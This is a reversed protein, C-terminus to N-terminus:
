IRPSTISSHRGRRAKCADGSQPRGVSAPVHPMHDSREELAPSRQSRSLRQTRLAHGLRSTHSTRGLIQSTGESSVSFGADFGDCSRVRFVPPKERVSKTGIVFSVTVALTDTPGAEISRLLASSKTLDSFGPQNPPCPPVGARSCTLSRDPMIAQRPAAPSPTSSAHYLINDNM